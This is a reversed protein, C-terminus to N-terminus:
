PEVSYWFNGFLRQTVAGYDDGIVLEVKLPNHMDSNDVCWGRTLFEWTDAQELQRLTMFFRIGDLQRLSGYVKAKEWWKFGGKPITFKHKGIKLVTNEAPPDIGNSDHSLNLIGRIVLKDESDGACEPEDYTSDSGTQIQQPFRLYTECILLDARKSFPAVPTEALYGTLAGGVDHWNKGAKPGSRSLYEEGGLLDDPESSAWNTYAFSEGTVWRWGGDPEPSGPPHFGGLYVEDHGPFLRFVADNEEQSTITALHTGPGLAEAEVKADPWSIGDQHQIKAYWHTTGDLHKWPRWVIENSAPKEPSSPTATGYARAATTAITTAVALSLVGILRTRQRQKSM